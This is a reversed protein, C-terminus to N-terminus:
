EAILAEMQPLSAKATEIDENMWRARFEWLNMVGMQVLRADRNFNTEEDEIISDDFDISIEVDEDLGAAMSANGYHLLIRCLEVLVSELIIEHKKITRFM